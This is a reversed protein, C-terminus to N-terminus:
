REFVVREVDVWRVLRRSRGEAKVFVGRHAAGVDETGELRFRRGDFLEVLAADEGDPEVSRVRGLEIDLRTDGARGDLIEWGREEDHGWRIEGQLVRGDRAFVTGRLPGLSPDRAASGTGPGPPHFRVEQLGEWAVLARGLSPDSVEIGRNTRDVDNTGRLVRVVGSRLM